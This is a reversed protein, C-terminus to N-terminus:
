GEVEHAAIEVGCAPCRFRQTTKDTEIFRLGTDNGLSSPRCTLLVGAASVDEMLGCGPCTLLERDEVFICLQRATERVVTLRQALEHISADSSKRKM